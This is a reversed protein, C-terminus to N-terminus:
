CRPLSVVDRVQRLSAAIAALPAENEPKMCFEIADLRTELVGRDTTPWALWERLIRGGVGSKTRNLMAYVSVGEKVTSATGPHQESAFVGLARVTLADCHVISASPIARITVVTLTDTSQGPLRLTVLHSLLAGLCGCLASNDIDVLSRLYMRHRFRDVQPQVDSCESVRLLQLRTLGAEHSFASPPLSKVTFARMPHLEDTQLACFAASDASAATLILSPPPSLRQKLQQVSQANPLEGCYLTNDVTSYYAVATVSRQPRSHVCLYTSDAPKPPPPM